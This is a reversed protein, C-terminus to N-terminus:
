VTADFSLVSRCSCCAAMDRPCPRKGPHRSTRSQLHYQHQRRGEEGGEQLEGVREQGMRSEAGRHPAQPSSPLSSNSVRSSDKSHPSSNSNSNGKTAMAMLGGALTTTPVTHLDMHVPTEMLTALLMRLAELTRCVM